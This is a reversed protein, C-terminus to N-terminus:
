VKQVKEGGFSEWSVIEELDKRRKPKPVAAPYGLPLLTVIKKDEPVGLIRKAEDQDFLGIWCTGLGLDEAALTIHDVAIAVDVAYSPVDCTMMRDPDTAVAAIIVPAEGVFAQRGAIEALEERVTADRVVVFNWPQRNSASPALRAAELVKELLEEPVPDAKYARTSCRSRALELFDKM